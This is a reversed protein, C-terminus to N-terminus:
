RTGAHVACGVLGPEVCTVLFTPTRELMAVYPPHAEFAARFVASDFLTGFRRAIGGAIYVGGTAKFVLAVDGAFRGFLRVFQDIVALAGADGAHAAAVVERATLPDRSANIARWLREIGGGSVATEASVALSGGGLSKFVGVEPDSAPGFSMHGAETPVVIWKGAHPVLGAVGLGTGPGLAIRPGPGPEGPHGLALREDPRLAPLAWAVAEFDNLVDLREFGFEARLVERRIRWPRNTMTIEDGVLPGAVAITAARPRAGVQDLYRRIADDIGSIDDDEFRVIQEPRGGPEALAVRTTSGGVDAVLISAM